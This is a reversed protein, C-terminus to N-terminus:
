ITAYKGPCGITLKKDIYNNDTVLDDEGVPALEARISRIFFM